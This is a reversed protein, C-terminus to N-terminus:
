GKKQKQEIREKKRLYIPIKESIKDCFKKVQPDIRKFNSPTIGFTRVWIETENFDQDLLMIVNMGTGPSNGWFALYFNDLNPQISSERVLSDSLFIGQTDGEKLKKYESSYIFFVRDGLYKRFSRVIEKNTGITELRLTKALADNGSEEAARIQNKATKLRVIVIYDSSDMQALSFQGSFVFACFLFLPM